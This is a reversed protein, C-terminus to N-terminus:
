VNGMAGLILDHFWADKILRRESVEKAFMRRFAVRELLFKFRQTTFAERLQRRHLFCERLFRFDALWDHLRQSRHDM